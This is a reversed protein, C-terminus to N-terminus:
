GAEELAQELLHKLEGADYNARAKVRVFPVKAAALAADVFRDRERRSAAAHSRDDLEVALLVRTTAADAVVFDLHKGAIPGGHKHWLAPPCSIVDALRIKPFLATGPPLSRTLVRYFALEGRSLLPGRASYPYRRRRALRWWLLAAVAAALAALASAVEPRAIFELAPHSM